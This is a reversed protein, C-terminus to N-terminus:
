TRIALHEANALYAVPIGNYDFLQTTNRSGSIDTLKAKLAEVSTAGLVPLIRELFSKSESRAFMKFPSFRNSAYVLTVPYWQRSEQLNKNRLFLTFDAQMLNEFSPDGDDPHAEKIIDAHVSIRNLNLRENRFQFSTIYQYFETFTSTSPRDSGDNPRFLYSSRAAIEAFDFREDELAIAITTLFAEHAIYKHADFQLQNGSLMDSSRYMLSGLGEHIRLVETTADPDRSYRSVARVVSNLERLYPRMETISALITEDLPEADSLNPTLQRLESVLADGFERILPPAQKTGDKIAREARRAHSRTGSAVPQTSLLADPINGLKPKVHQPRDVIWRLLQEYSDEFKDGSRFDFFIRGKYFIPIHANGQADDDTMVAAYKDQQSSKYIEPSIIQSETGVGGSRSNAKEVYKEDCVMIVKTVSSDSVMSEMFAYSDYGPKLDWKDLMVDVGDERLRTALNLVWSEHTPSSWSYSIFAKVATHASTSM